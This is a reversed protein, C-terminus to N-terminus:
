RARRYSSPVRDIARYTHPLNNLLFSRNVGFPLTRYGVFVINIQLNQEIELFQGPQLTTFNQPVGYAKSFGCAAVCLLTLVLRRLKNVNM